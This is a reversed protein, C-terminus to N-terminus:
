NMVRTGGVDAHDVGRVDRSERAPDRRELGFHSRPKALVM